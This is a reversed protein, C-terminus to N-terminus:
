EKPLSQLMESLVDSTLMSMSVGRREAEQRLGRKTEESLNVGLFEDRGNSPKTRRQIGADRLIRYIGDRSLNFAASIATVTDGDIYQQCIRTNRETRSQIDM